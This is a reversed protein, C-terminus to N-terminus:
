DVNTEGAATDMSASRQNVKHAFFSQVEEKFGREVLATYEKALRVPAVSTINRLITDRSDNRNIFDAIARLDNASEKQDDVTLEGACIDLGYDGYDIGGKYLAARRIICPVCYGCNNASKHKWYQKRTGHSCSVSSAALTKLLSPNKCEVVCEGKTKLALPNVLENWIGLRELVSRVEDLFFPHMTRTSCSGFRSPTLPLNIAILGNEPIFLPINPGFSRAAYIGLAMFVLSRSRLTLEVAADPRHSVRAQLPTARGPYETRIGQFLAQQQSKPGSMDYHGVLLLKQDSSEELLDIAGILSDLGGSFLCIGTPVFDSQKNRATQKKAPPVIFDEDSKTFSISWVDGTLFSLATELDSKAGNWKRPSSVPFTVSLERTWNDATLSRSVMKDIVYCLSAVMLFDVAVPDPIRCQKYLEKVSIDLSISRGSPLNIVIDVLGDTNRKPWDPHIEIKM